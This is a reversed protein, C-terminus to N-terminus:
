YDDSRDGYHNWYWDDYATDVRHTLGRNEAQRTVTVLSKLDFARDGGSLCIGAVAVSLTDKNLVSSYKRNGDRWQVEVLDGRESFSDVSANVKEFEYSLRKELDSLNSEKHFHKAFKVAQQEEPSLGSTLGKPLNYNGNLILDKCEMLKDSNNGYSVSDFWFNAGDFRLDVIDLIEANDVMMATFINGVGFRTSFSEVNFPFAIWRDGQAVLIAKAKKFIQLYESVEDENASRILRLNSHDKAKFIGFGDKKRTSVKFTYVVGNIRVTIKSSGKVYPSFIRQSLFDKEQNELKNLLDDIM